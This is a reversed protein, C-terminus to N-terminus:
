KGNKHKKKIKNYKNPIKFRDLDENRMIYQIYKSTYRGASNTKIGCVKKEMDYLEGREQYMESNQNNEFEMDEM